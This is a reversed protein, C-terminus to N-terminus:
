APSPPVRELPHLDSPFFVAVVFVSILMDLLSSGPETPPTMELLNLPGAVNLLAAGPYLDLSARDDM